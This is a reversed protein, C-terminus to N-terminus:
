FYFSECDINHEDGKTDHRKHIINENETKNIKQQRSVWYHGQERPGLTRM